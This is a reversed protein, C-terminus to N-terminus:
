LCLWLNIPKSNNLPNTYLGRQVWQKKCTMLTAISLRVVLPWQEWLMNLPFLKGRNLPLWPKCFTEKIIGEVSYSKHIFCVLILSNNVIYWWTLFGRILFHYWDPSYHLTHLCFGNVKYPQCDFTNVTIIYLRFKHETLTFVSFDVKHHGIEEVSPSEPYIPFAEM